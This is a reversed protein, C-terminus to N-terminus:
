VVAEGLSSRPPMVRAPFSRRETKGQLQRVQDTIARAVAVAQDWSLDAGRRRNADFSEEDAKVRAVDTQYRALDWAPMPHQLEERWREAAGFLVAAQELLGIEGALGAISEFMWIATGTQKIDLAESLAREFREASPEHEGARRAWWGWSGYGVAKGFRIGVADFEAVAERYTRDGAAPDDSAALVEALDYLTWAIAPRASAQRFLGLAETLLDAAGIRGLYHTARAEVLLANAIGLKDGLGEFLRRAEEALELMDSYDASWFVTMARELLSWALGVHDGADRSAATAEDLDTPDRRGSAATIARLRLADARGVKDGVKEFAALAEGALAHAREPEGALEAMSSATELVRAKWRIDSDPAVALVRDIWSRAEGLLGRLLWFEGLAGTLRMAKDHSGVALLHDLAARFNPQEEELRRLWVLQQADHLHSLGSEAIEVYYDTFGNMLATQEPGTLQGSAYDRLTELLRYRHTGGAELRTQIMSKDVLAALLGVGDEPAIPEFTTVSEVAELSFWSRFPALRRFLSQEDYSLLNYSWEVTSSLSQLRSHATRSGGSLFRFRDELKAAIEELGFARVRAAALEIALPMGDLRRCIEAVLRAGDQDVRFAPSAARARAMFLDVADGGEGADSELVELPPVLWVTEGPVALAERSTALVTLGPCRDLMQDVLEATSDVLHECNDLVLLTEKGALADVLAQSTVAGQRREPLLGEGTGIVGLAVAITDDVLGPDSIQDLEVWWVGDKFRGLLSRSIELALRTKGSGGAGTLTVLRAEQLRAVVGELELRRGIFTSRAAPLNHRPSAPAALGPSQRLIAEELSALEPSPSLGLELLRRRLSGFVGLAETQRGAQYLALMLQGALKERYPNAAVLGELEATLERYRGGALDLDIRRELLTLRLEELRTREQSISPADAVDDFPRGRWLSLQTQLRETEDSGEALAPDAFVDADVAGSPADLAYGSRRKVIVNEGLLGRLRSVYAQVTGVSSPPPSEGWIEDILRDMPVPHGRHAILIGLLTRPRPGGLDVEAGDIAVELPGLVRIQM